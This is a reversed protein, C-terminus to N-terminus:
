SPVVTILNPVATMIALLRRMEERMIVMEKVLSENKDRLYHNERVIKLGEGRSLPKLDPDNARKFGFM